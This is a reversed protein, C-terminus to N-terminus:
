RRAKRPAHGLVDLAADHLGTATLGFHGLLFEADGTPAFGDVGLMRMPVPRHRATLAAVAAGLGGSLTGEEATVLGRTEDAARLVAAEDLPAVFPTTIVRAEVGAAALTGAAALARSVLTGVALLTVDGGERLTVARGPAFPAAPGVVDPVKFRPVRIYSPGAHSHAWRLAARTQARDCPVLVPLGAVARLWSLDEVGHHTPGLEGYALGPSQGCLVVRRDSYACDAKIQELARGTLFPTAASVFPVMGGAALGAGVGVMNQEAIGVNVLRGPFEAAFGALKSSGVSDNCVAVVRPDERALAALEAAFTDRCDFLADPISGPVSGTRTM